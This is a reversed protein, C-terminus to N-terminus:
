PSHAFDDLLQLLRSVEGNALKPARCEFDTVRNTDWQFANVLCPDYAITACGAPAV